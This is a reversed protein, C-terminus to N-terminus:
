YCPNYCPAAYLDRYDTRTGWCTIVGSCDKECEGCVNIKEPEAYFVTLREHGGCAAVENPVFLNTSLAVGILLLALVLPRKPLRRFISM